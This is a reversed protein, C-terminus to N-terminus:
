SLSKVVDKSIYFICGSCSSWQHKTGRRKLSKSPLAQARTFLPILLLGPCSTSCSYAYRLVESCHNGFQHTSVWWVHFGQGKLSGEKLPCPSPFAPICDGPNHQHQLSHQRGPHTSLGVSVDSPSGLGGFSYFNGHLLFDKEHAKLGCDVLEAGEITKSM